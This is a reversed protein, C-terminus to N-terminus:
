RHGRARGPLIAPHSGGDAVVVGDDDAGAVVAQHAGGVEGPAPHAGEQQLGPGGDAAGGGALREPAARDVDAVAVVDREAGGRDGLLQAQRVVAQAVEVQLRRLHVHRPGAPRRPGAVVRQLRRQVGDAAAVGPLHVGVAAVRVRRDRRDLQHHRGRHVRRAEAAQGALHQSRTPAADGRQQAPAAAASRVHHPGIEGLLGQEPGAEQDARHHPADRRLGRAAAETRQGVRHAVHAGHPPRHAAAALHWAGQQGRELRGAARQASGRLHRGDVALPLGHATDRQVVAGLDGGAHHDARAVRM